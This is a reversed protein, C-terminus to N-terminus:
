LKEGNLIISLPSIHSKNHQTIKRRSRTQQSNKQKMSTHQIDDFTKEDVSIIHDKDKM